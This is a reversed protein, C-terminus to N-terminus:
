SASCLMIFIYLLTMKTYALQLMSVVCIRAFLGIEVCEVVFHRDLSGVNQYLPQVDCVM